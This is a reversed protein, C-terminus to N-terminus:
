SRIYYGSLFTPSPAGQGTSGQITVAATCQVQLTFSQGVPTTSAISPIQILYSLSATMNDAGALVGGDKVFFFSPTMANGGSDVVRVQVTHNAAPVNTFFAQGNIQWWGPNYILASGSLIQVENSSATGDMAIPTWTNAIIAATTSSQQMLFSPLLRSCDTRFVFVVNTSSDTKAIEFRGWFGAINKFYKGYQYTGSAQSGSFLTVTQAVTTRDQSYTVFKVTLNLTGLVQFFATPNYGSGDFFAGNTILPIWPGVMSTLTATTGIVLVGGGGIAPNAGTAADIGWTGVVMQWGDPAAQTLSM